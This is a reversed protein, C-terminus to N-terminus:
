SERLRSFKCQDCTLEFLSHKYITVANTKHRSRHCSPSLTGSFCIHTMDCSDSSVWFEGFGLGFGTGFFEGHAVNNILDLYHEGDHDILYQGQAREILLEQKKLNEELPLISIWFRNISM